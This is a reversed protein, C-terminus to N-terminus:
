GWALELNGGIFAGLNGTGDTEPNPNGPNDLSLALPSNCLPDSSDVTPSPDTYFNVFFATFPGVGPLVWGMFVWWGSSGILNPYSRWAAYLFITNCAISGQAPASTFTGPFLFEAYASCTTGSPQSVLGSEDEMFENGGSIFPADYVGDATSAGTYSWGYGFIDAGVVTGTLTAILTSSAGPCLSCPSGACGNGAGDDLVRKGAATLIRKGSSKLIRDGAVNLAPRRSRWRPAPRSPRLFRSARDLKSLIEIM